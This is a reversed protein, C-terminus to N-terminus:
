KYVIIQYSQNVTGDTVSDYISCLMVYGGNPPAQVASYNYQYQKGCPYKFILDTGSQTIHYLEVNQIVETPIRTVYAEDGFFNFDIDGNYFDEDPNFTYDTKISGDSFNVRNVEVGFNTSIMYKDTQSIRNFYRVSQSDESWTFGFFYYDYKQDANLKIKSQHGTVPDLIGLYTNTRDDNYYAFAIKSGDPSFVVDYAWFYDDFRKEGTETDAVYYKGYGSITGQNRARYVYCSLDPSMVMDKVIKGPANVSGTKMMTDGSFIYYHGFFCLAFKGDPAKTLTMESSKYSQDADFKESYLKTLSNESINYRYIDHSFGLTSTVLGGIRYSIILNNDDLVLLQMYSNDDTFGNLENISFRSSIEQPLSSSSVSETAFISSINQSSSSSDTLLDSVASPTSINPICATIFLLFMMFVSLLPIHLSKKLMFRYRKEIM